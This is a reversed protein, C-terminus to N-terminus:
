RENLWNISDDNTVFLGPKGPKKTKPTGPLTNKRLSKYYCM